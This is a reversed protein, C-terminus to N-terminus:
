ATGAGAVILAGIAVVTSHEVVGAHAALLHDLVAAHAAHEYRRQDDPTTRKLAVALPLGCLPCTCAARGSLTAADFM